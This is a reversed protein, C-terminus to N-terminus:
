RFKGTDNIFIGQETMHDHHNGGEWTSIEIIYVGNKEPEAEYESYFDFDLWYTVSETVLEYSGGILWYGQGDILDGDDDRGLRTHGQATAANGTYSVSPGEYVDILAEAMEGLEPCSEQAEESFVSMLLEADGEDLAQVIVEMLADAQQDTSGSLYANLDAPGGNEPDHGGCGCGYLCLAAVLIIILRKM